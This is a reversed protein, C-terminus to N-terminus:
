AGRKEIFRAAVGTGIFGLVGLVVAADIFATSNTRTADVVLISIVIVLLGDLAIVRDALSPGIGIRVAIALGAIALLILALTPM